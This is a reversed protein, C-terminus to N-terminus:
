SRPNRCDPEGLVDASRVRIHRRTGAETVIDAGDADIATIVWGPDLVALLGTRTPAEGAGASGSRIVEEALWGLEAARRAFRDLFRGARDILAQREMAPEGGPMACLRAFAEAWERPVAAGEEVIAAREFEDEAPDTETWDTGRFNGAGGSATSVFGVCPAETLEPAEAAPFCRSKELRRLRELWTM